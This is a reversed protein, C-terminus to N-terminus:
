GPATACVNRDATEGVNTDAPSSGTGLSGSQDAARCTLFGAFRCTQFGASRRAAGPKGVQNVTSMQPLGYRWRDGSSNKPAGLQMSCSLSRDVTFRPLSDFADHTIRVEERSRPKALFIHFLVRAFIRLRSSALPGPQCEEYWLAAAELEQSVEPHRIVRM